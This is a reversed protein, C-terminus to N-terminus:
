SITVVDVKPAFSTTVSYALELIQYLDRYRLLISPEGGLRFAGPEFGPLSAVFLASLRTFDLNEAKRTKIASTPSSRVGILISCLLLM